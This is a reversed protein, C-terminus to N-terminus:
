TRQELEEVFDGLVENFAGPREEPPVHGTDYFTLLRAGPIAHAVKVQNRYPVTRDNRGAVVLTPVSIRAMAEPFHYGGQQKTLEVYSLDWDKVRVAKLELEVTEDSLRKPDAYAWSMVARANKGFFSRPVLPALRRLQPLSRIKDLYPRSRFRRSGTPASVLVLGEVRGPCEDAVLVAVSAGQSHGVLVAREVGLADMLALTQHASSRMSYPSEGTWDGELPRGSLGFGPRDFAIVRYHAALAGMAHRWSYVSSAFGHLFVLTTKADAPGQVKYHLRVGGVDVFHSDADALDEADVLGEPRPVPVLLPLVVAAAGILVGLGFWPLWPGTRRASLSDQAM